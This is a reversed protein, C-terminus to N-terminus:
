ILNTIMARNHMPNGFWMTIGDDKMMYRADINVNFAFGRLKNTNSFFEYLNLKM